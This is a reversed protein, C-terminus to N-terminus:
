DEMWGGFNQGFWRVPHDVSAQYGFEYGGHGDKRVYARDFFYHSLEERLRRRIQGPLYGTSPLEAGSRTPVVKKM